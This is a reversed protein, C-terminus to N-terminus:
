YDQIDCYHNLAEDLADLAEEFNDYKGRGLRATNIARQLDDDGPLQYKRDLIIGSPSVEVTVKVPTLVYVESFSSKM